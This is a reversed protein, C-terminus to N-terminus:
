KGSLVKKPQRTRYVGVFIFGLLGAFGWPIPVNVEEVPVEVSATQLSLLYDFATMESPALDGITHAQAGAVWFDAPDTDGYSPTISADPPYDADGPDFFDSANMAGTEVNIHTGISPKGTVHSDGADRDGYNASDIAGPPAPTHFTLVDFHEINSPTAGAVSGPICLDPDAFSGNEDDRGIVTTDHVFAADFGFPDAGASPYPRDDKLSVLSVLGHIMQVINIDTIPVGSINKYEFRQVMVYKNSTIPAVTVSPASEPTMGNQIGVAGNDVMESTIKIELDANAVISEMVPLGSGNTGIMSIPAVVSFNSNTTWDPFIFDPELWIPAVPVGNRVYAM